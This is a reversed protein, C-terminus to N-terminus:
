DTGVVHTRKWVELVAQRGQLAWIAWVEAKRSYLKGHQWIGIYNITNIEGFNSYKADNSIQGFWTLKPGMQQLIRTLEVYDIM